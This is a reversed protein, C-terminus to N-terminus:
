KKPGKGKNKEKGKGNKKERKADQKGPFSFSGQKLAHFADSGPKIGLEQAIVGWGKGNNDRYTQVVEDLHIGTMRSIELCIFVDAPSPVTTALAHIDPLPIGFHASLSTNFGSIDGKARIDLDARFSDLDARAAHVGVVLLVAMTQFLALAKTM